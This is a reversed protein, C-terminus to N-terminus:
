ESTTRCTALRMTCRNCMRFCIAAQDAFRRVTIYKWWVTPVAPKSLVRTAQEMLADGHESTEQLMTRSRVIRAMRTNSDNYGCLPCFWASAHLEIIVLVCAADFVRVFLYILIM